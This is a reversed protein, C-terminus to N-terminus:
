HRVPGDWPSAPSQEGVLLAIDPHACRPIFRLRQL